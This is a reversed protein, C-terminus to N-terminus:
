KKPTMGPAPAPTGAGNTPAPKVPTAPTLPIALKAKVKDLIDEGGMYLLVGLGSDIVYTIGNEKAVDAIAKDAKEIIPTYLEAELKQLDTTASQEFESLDQEKQQIAKIKLDTIAPAWTKSNAQYDTALAEYETQLTQYQTSYQGRRAELEAKAAVSEPMAEILTKRDLHAIKQSFASLSAVLAVTLILFRKM